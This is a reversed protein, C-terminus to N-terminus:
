SIVVNNLVVNGNEDLVVLESWIAKPDNVILSTPNVRNYANGEVNTYTDTPERKNYGIQNMKVSLSKRPCKKISGGLIEIIHFSADKSRIYRDAIYTKGLTQIIANYYRENTNDTFFNKIVNDHTITSFIPTIKNKIVGIVSKKSLNHSIKKCSLVCKEAAEKSFHTKVITNVKLDAAMDVFSSISGDAGVNKYFHYHKDAALTFTNCVNNDAYYNNKIDCLITVPVYKGLYLIDVNDKLTVITGPVIDSIKIGVSNKIITNEIASKYPSSNEPLLVNKGSTSRGWICKGQIEGNVITTCDIINELNGSEIELQFGRPDIIRWVVNGGGWYSRHLPKFLQFGSQLENKLISPAIKNNRWGDVTSMRKKSAADEGYPTAFGLPILEDAKREVYGVYYQDPIIIKEM